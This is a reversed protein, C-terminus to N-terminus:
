HDLFSRNENTQYEDASVSYMVSNFTHEGFAGSQIVLNHSDFPSINVLRLVVRNRELKEVLAAVDKPLGARRRDLDFYRVSCMLLGGNYMVQPAGLTLQILAETLVPHNEHLCILFSVHKNRNLPIASVGRIQPLKNLSGDDQGLARTSPPTRAASGPGSGASGPSGRSGSILVSDHMNQAGTPSFSCSTARANHEKSKKLVAERSVYVKEIM